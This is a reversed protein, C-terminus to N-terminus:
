PIKPYKMYKFKCIDEFYYIDSLTLERILDEQQDILNAEIYPIKKVTSAIVKYHGDIIFFDKDYCTIDIIDKEGSRSGPGAGGLLEVHYNLKDMDINRMNKSPYLNRPSILFKGKYNEVSFECAKEYIIDVIEEPASFTSDIILNYNSFDYYDIKYLEKFRKSETESRELLNKEAENIDKYKEVEGRNDNYVRRAAVNINTWVFVKFAHPIFNWALRSDFIINKDTEDEGIQKVKNDIAFDYKNNKNMLKNMQLININLEESIRRQIYGTSYFEYGYKDSFLKCVTTKGSGLNGTITIHM